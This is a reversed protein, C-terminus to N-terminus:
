EHGPTNTRLKLVENEDYQFPLKTPDPRPKQRLAQIERSGRKETPAAHKQFTENTATRDPLEYVMRSRRKARVTVFAHITSAAVSLHVHEALFRSIQQYTRRKRRL